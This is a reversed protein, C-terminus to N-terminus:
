GNIRERILKLDEENIFLGDIIIDKLKIGLETFGNEKDLAVFLKKRLEETKSNIEFISIDTQSFYSALIPVGNAKILSLIKLRIDNIEISMKSPFNNILEMIDIIEIYCKGNAGIRYAEKLRENNVNINGFGWQFTFYPQLTVYAIKLDKGIYEKGYEKIFSKESSCEKRVFPKEDIFIIATFM